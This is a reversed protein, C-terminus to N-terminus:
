DCFDTRRRRRKEIEKEIEEEENERKRKERKKYGSGTGIITWNTRERGRNRIVQKKIRTCGREKDDHDDVMQRKQNEM